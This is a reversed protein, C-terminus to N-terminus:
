NAKLRQRYAEYLVVGGAVSANLSQLPGCQPISVLLDCSERILRRLGKEEGGIVLALPVTFDAQYISLDAEVATGVVWVNKARLQQIAAALNTVIALRAHELAGASTKSVLPTPKASRDKPIVIGDVGIATATRILAGLNHPDLVSDIILLIPAAANKRDHAVIKTFDVTPYPTVRAGIGQHGGSGCLTDLKRADAQKVPIGNKRALQVTQRIRKNGNDGALLLEWIKRRGAALAEAIPHIGYLIEEKPPITAM